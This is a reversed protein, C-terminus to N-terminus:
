INLKQEEAKALEKKTNIIKYYLIGSCIVIIAMLVIALKKM